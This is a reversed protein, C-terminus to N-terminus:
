SNCPQYNCVFFMRCFCWLLFRTNSSTATKTNNAHCNAGEEGLNASWIFGRPWFVRCGNDGLVGSCRYYLVVRIILNALVHSLVLPLWSALKRRCVLVTIFRPLTIPPWKALEQYITCHNWHHCCWSFCLVLAGVTFMTCCLCVVAQQDLNDYCAICCFNDGAVVVGGWILAVLKDTRVNGACWQCDSSQHTVRISWTGPWNRHSWWKRRSHVVQGVCGHSIVVCFVSVHLM